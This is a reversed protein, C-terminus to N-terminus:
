FEIVTLESRTARGVLRGYDPRRWRTGVQLDRGGAGIVVALSEVKAVTRSRVQNVL